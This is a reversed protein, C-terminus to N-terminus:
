EQWFRGLVQVVDDVEVRSYHQEWYFIRKEKVVSLDKVSSEEFAFFQSDILQELKQAYDKAIKLADSQAATLSEDCFAGYEDGGFDKLFDSYEKLNMYEEILKDWREDIIQSLISFNMLDKHLDIEHVNLVDVYPASELASYYDGNIVINTNLSDNPIIKFTRRTSKDTFSDYSSAVYECEYVGFIVRNDNKSFIFDGVNDFFEGCDSESKMGIM